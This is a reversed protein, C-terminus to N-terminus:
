NAETKYNDLSLITHIHFFYFIICVRQELPKSDSRDRKTRKNPSRIQAGIITFSADELRFNEDNYGNCLTYLLIISTNYM